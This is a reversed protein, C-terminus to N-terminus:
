LSLQVCLSTTLIQHGFMHKGEKKVLSGNFYYGFFLFPIISYCFPFYSSLMFPHPIEVFILKMRAEYLSSALGYYAHLSYTSLLFIGPFSRSESVLSVIFHPLLIHIYFCASYNLSQTYQLVERSVFLLRLVLVRAYIGVPLFSKGSDYPTNAGWLINEENM